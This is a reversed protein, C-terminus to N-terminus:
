LVYEGNSTAVRDTIPNVTLVIGGSTWGYAAQLVDISAQTVGQLFNSGQEGTVESNHTYDPDAQTLDTRYYVYKNVQGRPTTVYGPVTDAM